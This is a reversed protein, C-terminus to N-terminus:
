AVTGGAATYAKQLDAIHNEHQGYGAGPLSAWRSACKVVAAAFHGAEIDNVAHCEQLLKICWRDQSAPSFDPLGLQQKYFPWYRGLFQYRGAADSNLERNFVAPHASYGHFLLPHAATAGVLVNYGNDSKALLAPGIESWAIMDLFAKMNPSM